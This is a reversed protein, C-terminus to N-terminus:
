LKVSSFTFSERGVPSCANLVRKFTVPDDKNGSDLVMEEGPATEGPEKGTEWLAEGRSWAWSLPGELTPDWAPFLQFVVRTRQLPPPAWPSPSGIGGPSETASFTLCSGKTTLSTWSSTPALHNIGNATPCILLKSFSVSPKFGPKEPGLSRLIWPHRGASRTGIIM